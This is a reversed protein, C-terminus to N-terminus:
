QSAGAPVHGVDNADDGKRSSSSRRGGVHVSTYTHSVTMGIGTTGDGFDWYYKLGDTDGNDAM